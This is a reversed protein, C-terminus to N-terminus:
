SKELWTHVHSSAFLFTSCQLISAKLSHHQLLSKLTGLVALLDFWDIRLSILGPYENSPSISFSFSWYKPWWIHLASENSCVRISLFISPLFLIPHCLVLHNSPMVLEISTLKRLSLSIPFSLYAQHAATWPTVFLWVHSFLLPSSHSTQAGPPQHSYHRGWSALWMQAVSLTLGLSLNLSFPVNPECLGSLCLCGQNCSCLIFIKGNSFTSHFLVIPDLELIKHIGKLLAPLLSVLMFWQADRPVDRVNYRILRNGAPAPLSCPVRGFVQHSPETHRFRWIPGFSVASSFRWFGGHYHLSTLPDLM